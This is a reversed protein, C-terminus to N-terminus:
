PIAHTAHQASHVAHLVCWETVNHTKVLFVRVQYSTAFNELIVQQFDARRERANISAHPGFGNLQEQTLVHTCALRRVADAVPAVHPQTGV